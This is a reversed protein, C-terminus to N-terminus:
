NSTLQPPIAREAAARTSSPQSLESAAGQEVRNRGGSKARYLAADAARLLPDFDSVRAVEAPAVGLSVTVTLTVESTEIPEDGVRARLREALKASAEVNCEPFVILFEEGGFRGVGDYARIGSRVRGAVERLVEDGVLHGHTDNIMKFHDIDAMVLGVPFGQREGRVLERRLFDLIAARNWLGTLSDHTAQAQLKEQLELIRGGSRLRFILEQADFPKTLFDDVGAEFGKVLDEKRTKATLLVIYTYPHDRWSRVQRCVQPGDKGPMMWDLIALRPADERRLVEVAEMGDNVLVAEFGCRALAGEVLFRSVPDDDAVLVKM